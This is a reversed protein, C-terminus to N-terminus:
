SGQLYTFGEIARTFPHEYADRFSRHKLQAVLVDRGV